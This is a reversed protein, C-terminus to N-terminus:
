RDTKGDQFKQLAESLAQLQQQEAMTTVFRTTLSLLLAPIASIAITKHRASPPAHLYRGFQDAALSERNVVRGKLVDGEAVTHADTDFYSFLLSIDM